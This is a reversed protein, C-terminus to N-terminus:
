QPMQGNQSQAALRADATQLQTVHDSARRGLDLVTAGLLEARAARQSTSEALASTVADSGLVSSATSGALEGSLRLPASARDMSAAIGSVFAADVTLDAV